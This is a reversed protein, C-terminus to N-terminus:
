IWGCQLLFFDLYNQSFQILIVLVFYLYTGKMGTTMILMPMHSKALEECWIKWIKGHFGHLSIKLLWDTILEPQLGMNTLGLADEIGAEIEEQVVLM